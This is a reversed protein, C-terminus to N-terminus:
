PAAALSWAAVTAAGRELLPEACALSTEGTTTVDDVLLIRLGTVPSAAYAGRIDRRADRGKSSQPDDHRLRQLLGARLPRGTARAVGRAILHAQNYGRERLRRASLPVPVICDFDEGPSISRAAAYGLSAGRWPENDFKLRHVANRLPGHFWGAAVRRSLPPSAPLTIDRLLHSCDPCLGAEEQFLPLRCIPCCPPAFLDLLARLM